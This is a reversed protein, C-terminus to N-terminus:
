KNAKTFLTILYGLVSNIGFGLFRGFGLVRSVWFEKFDSVSKFVLVLGFNYHAGVLRKLATQYGM